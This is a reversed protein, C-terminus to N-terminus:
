AAEPDARRGTRAEVPRREIEAAGDVAALVDGLCGELHDDCPVIRAVREGPAHETEAAPLALALAEDVGTGARAVTVVAAHASWGGLEPREAIAVDLRLLQTSPRAPLVRLRADQWTGSGDVHVMLRYACAPVDERLRGLRRCVAELHALRAPATTPVHMRTASLFPVLLLGTAPLLMPPTPMGESGTAAWVGWATAPLLVLGAVTTIDVPATFGLRKWWRQRRARRLDAPTAPRFTGFRPAPGSRVPTRQLSGLAVAALLSVALLPQAPWSWAALAALGVLLPIALGESLALWPRARVRTLRCARRFGLRSWLVLLLLAAALAAPGRRDPPTVGHALLRPKRVPRAPARLEAAMAEEPVDIEVTWPVTRPLHAREWTLVSRDDLETATFAIQARDESSEVAAPAAGPPATVSITVGDLGSRWPPLTWRVRIDGGPLGETARHALTTTYVLGVRLAGRRPSNGRGRFSLSLRGDERRSVRPAFKISPDDASVAWPPKSEDLVYDPDLGAIELGELWGAHIRVGLEMAVRASGDPQIEVHATVSRVHADTWASAGAPWLLGLACCLALIARSCTSPVPV